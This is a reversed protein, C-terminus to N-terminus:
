VRWNKWPSEICDLLRENSYSRDGDVSAMAARLPEAIWSEVYIRVQRKQEETFPENFPSNFVACTSEKDESAALLAETKKLAERIAAVANTKVYAM